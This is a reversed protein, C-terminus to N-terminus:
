LLSQIRTKWQPIDMWLAEEIGRERLITQIEEIWTIPPRGRKRKGPPTWEMVRRPLREQAMRKTHGYWQLKKTQIFDVISNNVNMTNKIVENRIKERRSVRTSHRWFSDRICM